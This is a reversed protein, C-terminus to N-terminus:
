SRARLKDLARTLRDMADASVGVFRVAFGFDPKQYLTLAHIQISGESPLDIELLIRIGPEQEHMSNVFCGGESLDYIQVPQELLGLRRGDFPGVVRQHRRQNHHGGQSENV